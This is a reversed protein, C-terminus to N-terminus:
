TVGPIQDTQPGQQAMIKAIRRIQMWWQEKPRQFTIDVLRPFDEFSSFAVRGAQLGAFAAMPSADAAEEVARRAADNNREQLERALRM